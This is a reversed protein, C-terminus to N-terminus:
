SLRRGAPITLAGATRQESGDLHLLPLSAAARKRV